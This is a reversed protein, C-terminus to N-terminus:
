YNVFLSVNCMRKGSVCEAMELADKFRLKQSM